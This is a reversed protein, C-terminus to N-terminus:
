RIAKCLSRRWTSCESSWHELDTIATMEDISNVKNMIRMLQKNYRQALRLFNTIKIRRM